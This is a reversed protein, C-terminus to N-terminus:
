LEVKFAEDIKKRRDKAIAEERAAKQEPTEEGYMAKVEGTKPDKYENLKVWRTKEKEPKPPVEGRNWADLAADEEAKIQARQIEDQSLREPKSLKKEEPQPNNKWDEMQQDMSKEFNRVMNKINLSYM